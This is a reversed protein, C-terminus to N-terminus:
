TKWTRSSIYPETGVAVGLPKLHDYGTAEAEVDLDIVTEPSVSFPDVGLRHDGKKVIETVDEPAVTAPGVKWQVRTLKPVAERDQYGGVVIFALKSTTFDVVAGDQWGTATYSKRFTAINFDKPGIVAIGIKGAEPKFPTPSLTAPAFYREADAIVSALLGDFRALYDLPLIERLKQWVIARIPAYPM